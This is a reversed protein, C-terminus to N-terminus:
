HADEIEDPSVVTVSGDVLEIEVENGRDNDPDLSIITGNSGVTTVWVLQGLTIDDM